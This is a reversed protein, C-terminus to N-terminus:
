VWKTGVFHIKKTHNPNRIIAQMVSWYSSIGKLGDRGCAVLVLYSEELFM